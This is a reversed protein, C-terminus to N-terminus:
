INLEEKVVELERNVEVANSFGAIHVPGQYLKALRQLKQIRDSDLCPSTDRDGSPQVLLGNPYQPEFVAEGGCSQDWDWIESKERYYYPKGDIHILNHTHRVDKAHVTRYSGHLDMAVTCHWPTKPFENNPQLILPVSLKAAGSSPHISLRVCDPCHDQLLKTFSEARIMMAKAIAKVGKRYQSGSCARTAVTTYKLDSELFRIFGRYTTLTDQDSEIMRRIDDDSKGYKALLTARSKSTLSMYTERTLPRQYTLGIIEMVRQLRLNKFGRKEIINNLVESYEWTDEEPIGVVDDFVLGDSAITIRGGKPYIKEIDICLQNLRALALVEGLDPLKGIVKDCNNISKWPFSPLVMKIPTNQRVQRRVRESFNSRGIWVQDQSGTHQNTHRGYQELLDLICGTIHEINDSHGSVTAEVPIPTLSSTLDTKPTWCLTTSWNVLRQIFSSLNQAAQLQQVLPLSKILIAARNLLWTLARPLAEESATEGVSFFHPLINEAWPTLDLNRNIQIETTMTSFNVLSPDHARTESAQYRFQIVKLHTM